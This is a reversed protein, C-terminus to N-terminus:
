RAVELRTFAVGDPTTRMQWVTGDPRVDFKRYVTTFYDNPLELLPEPKDTM